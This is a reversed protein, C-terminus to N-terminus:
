GDSWYFGVAGVRVKHGSVCRSGLPKVPNGAPAQREGESIENSFIEKYGRLLPFVQKVVEGEQGRM